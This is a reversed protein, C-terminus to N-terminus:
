VAERVQSLAADFVGDVTGCVFLADTDTFDPEDWSVERSVASGAPVTGAAPTGPMLVSGSQADGISANSSAVATLPDVGRSASVPGAALGLGLTTLGGILTVAALRQRMSRM